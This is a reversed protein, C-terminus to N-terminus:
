SATEGPLTSLGDQAPPTEAKKKIWARYTPLDIVANLIEVIANDDIAGLATMEHNGVRYNFSLAEVAMEAIDCMRLPQHTTAETQLGNNFMTEDWWSCAIQWLRSYRDVVDSYQWVGDIFGMKRPLTMVFGSDTFRRAVPVLWYEGGLMVPHGPLQKSRALQEPTPRNENEYGIWLSDSAKIWTQRDPYYGAM